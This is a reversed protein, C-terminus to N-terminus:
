TLPPLGGQYTTASLQPTQPYSDNPLRNRIRTYWDRYTRAGRLVDLASWTFAGNPRGFFNADYSYETDACGSILVASSRSTSKPKARQEIEVAQEETIPVSPILAPSIFKPTGKAVPGTNFAKLVTGSHCSDSMISARVGYRRASFIQHIEDDMLLGGSDLNHMCMAEDRGDSEDGDTDPVWTGHGSYTFVITDRYKSQEIMERLLRVVNDKHADGDLITTVTFGLGQLARTWDEADNVCGSLDNAYGPYDNIGVCLARRM